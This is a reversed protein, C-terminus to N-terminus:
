SFRVVKGAPNLADTTSAGPHICGHVTTGHRGKRRKGLLGVREVVLRVLRKSPADDAVRM